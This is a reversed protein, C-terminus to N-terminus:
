KVLTMKRTQTFLGSEIKYIYMGSNLESADFNITHVGSEKFENVLTRIQQGLINFLTLTVSGAEPLNFKITTSPNFPNPYNQSLEFKKIGNMDVEITKYYEFQGDNDIQKLRYSYKGASVKDDVFSYDKPSNSNGNGNVFGIKEWTKSKEDKTKREVEFGYNNIETATNWSLKVASGITTASFSTLEVPLVSEVWEDSIRIGDVTINQTAIYQRLCIREISALGSVTTTHEPTGAAIESIPVGSSLVWLSADGTTSIDYKVIVLYTTLLDFDTPTAAYSETSTNSIGFNIKDPTLSPKVFIRAAFTTASNGLHIFYGETGTTVNVLFSYYITGSSITAFLKSVDEGNNDLLAANGINSSPYDSYVLGTTTNIAENGAGSHAIWGYNTLLESFDFNEVVPLSLPPSTVSGNCTVNVTTAGGGANSITESNYTGVSLGAKLRVFIPTSTLTASSYAVNVSGSFTSNDTSVEYNTLGTVTINGPAGTLNSGSLNYSQSTSPGSGEFYTFGTLLTPNISITPSVSISNITVDDIYVTAATRYFQVLINASNLNMTATKYVASGTTLSFPSGIASNWSIGGDTSYNVQVSGSTTSSSAWFTVTSVGGTINPTIIQAGTQSRLQCSYTGSNVGVTGRIVGNAQGTWIGSGLTFTTTTSYSTPLGSEFSETLFVQGLVPLSFFIIIILLGFKKM